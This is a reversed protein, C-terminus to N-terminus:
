SNATRRSQDQRWEELSQAFEEASQFRDKPLKALSKELIDLLQVDINKIPVIPEGAHKRLIELRNGSHFPPKGSLLEYLTCGISYIDSRVDANTGFEAQEPAMYCVTGLLTGIRTLPETDDQDTPNEDGAEGDFRALGMDLLKIQGDPRVLINSPKLDRHIIGTRHLAAVADLLQLTYDVGQSVPLSEKEDVLVKLNVGDILEMVIYTAKESIDLVEVIYPHHIQAIATAERKLRKLLKPYLHSNGRPVKVAVDRKLRGDFARYISSTGGRAIKERLYYRNQLILKYNELSVLKDAQWLTINNQVSLLDIFKQFSEPRHKKLVKQLLKTPILTNHHIREVWQTRTEDQGNNSSEMLSDLANADAPKANVRLRYKGILVTEGHKLERIKIKRENVLTGKKGLLDIVFLRNNSRLCACHVSSVSPSIFRFQCRDRSGVLTLHHSLHVSAKVDGKKIWELHPRFSARHKVAIRDELPNGVVPFQMEASSHELRVSVEFPGLFLTEEPKVWGSRHKGDSWAVGTRNSLDVCFVRNDLPILLAHRYSIEDDQLVLHSRLSKGLIAYANEITVTRSDGTKTNKYSVEFRTINESPASLISTDSVPILPSEM